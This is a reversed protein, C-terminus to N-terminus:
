LTIRGLAMPISSISSPPILGVETVVATISSPPTLDYLPNLIELNPAPASTQFLHSPAAFFLLDFIHENSLIYSGLENKGFGDLM